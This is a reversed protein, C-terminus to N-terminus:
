SRLGLSALRGKLLLGNPLCIFPNPKSVVLHKQVASTAPKATTNTSLQAEDRHPATGIHTPGARWWPYHAPLSIRHKVTRGPRPLRQSGKGTAYCCVINGESIDPM